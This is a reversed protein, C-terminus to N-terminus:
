PQFEMTFINEKNISPLDVEIPFTKRSGNKTTTYSLVSGARKMIEIIGYSTSAVVTKGEVPDMAIAQFDESTNSGSIFGELSGVKDITIDNVHFVNIRDRISADDASAGQNATMLIGDVANMGFCRATSGVNVSGAPQNSTLGKPGIHCIVLNAADKTLLFLRTKDASLKMYFPENGVTTLIPRDEAYSADTEIFQDPASKSPDRRYNVINGAKGCVILQNDGVFVASYPTNFTGPRALEHTSGFIDKSFPPVIEALALAMIKSSGYDCGIAVKGDPSVAVGSVKSFGSSKQACSVPPNATLDIAEIGGTEGPILALAGQSGFGIQTAQTESLSVKTIFNAVITGDRPDMIYIRNVSPVLILVLRHVDVVSMATVGSPTRVLVDNLGERVGSPIQFVIESSSQSKIPADCGSVKVTANSLGSGKIRALDGVVLLGGTVDEVVPSTSSGGGAGTSMAYAVSTMQTRPLLVNATDLSGVAIQLYIPLTTQFSSPTLTGSLVSGSGIAHEFVGSSDPTVMASESYFITGSNVTNADGGTWLSFYVAQQTTIPSGSSNTLRGQYQILSPAQAWLSATLFGLFVLVFALAKMDLVKQRMEM